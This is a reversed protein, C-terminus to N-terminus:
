NPIQVIEKPEKLKGYLIRPDNDSWRVKEFNLKHLLKISQINEKDVVAIFCNIKHSNNIHELLKRSSDLMIGKREYNPSLIFTLAWCPLPNGDSDTASKLKPHAFFLYGITEWEYNILKKISYFMYSNASADRLLNTFVNISETRSKRYLIPLYKEVKSTCTIEFFKDYEYKYKSKDLKLKEDFPILKVTTSIQLM